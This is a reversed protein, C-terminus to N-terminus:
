HTRENPTVDKWVLIIGSKCRQKTLKCGPIKELRYISDSLNDKLWSGTVGSFKSKIIEDKENKVYYVKAGKVFIQTFKQEIDWAGLRYADIDLLENLNTPANKIYLSDTDTYVVNEIGVKLIADWIQMRAYSTIACAIFMNNARPPTARRVLRILQNDLVHLESRKDIVEYQHKGWMFTMGPQLHEYEAIDNCVYCEDYENRKAHVGYGANLIIKFAHAMGDKGQEKFDSKFKYMVEIYGALYKDAILWYHNKIKVGSLDYFKALFEFEEKLYFCKFDYCEFVYRFRPNFSGIKNHKPWNILTAIMGRISEAAAVDIEYFECVDDPTLNWQRYDNDLMNNVPGNPLKKTMAYPYASNIDIGVGNECKVEKLHYDVNFQTFGGYYFNKALKNEEASHKFGRYWANGKHARTYEKQLKLAISAATLKSHWTFNKLWPWKTKLFEMAKDIEILSRRVIEVDRECYEVFEPDYKSVDDEPEVDYFDRTKQGNKYKNIGVSKGLADVPARCINFSCRFVIKFYKKYVEQYYQFEIEYIESGNRLATFGENHDKLKNQMKYKQSLWALIFTGDFSLNHCYVKINRGLSMYFRMVGDLDVGTDCITGDWNKTHYLLVKTDQHIDFYDTDKTVTEFDLVWIDSIERAM